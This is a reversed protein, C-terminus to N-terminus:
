GVRARSPPECTDRILITCNSTRRNSRDGIVSCCFHEVRCNTEVSEVPRRVANVPRAYRCLRASSQGRRCTGRLSGLHAGARDIAALNRDDRISCTRGIRTFHIHPVHVRVVNVPTNPFRQIPSCRPYLDIVRSDRVATVQEVTATCLIGRVVERQRGNWIRWWVRRTTRRIDIGSRGINELACDGVHKWGAVPGALVSEHIQRVNVPAAVNSPHMRSLM